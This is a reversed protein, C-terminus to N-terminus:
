YCLLRPTLNWPTRLLFPRARFPQFLTRSKEEGGAEVQRQTHSCGERQAM